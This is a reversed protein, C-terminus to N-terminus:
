GATLAYVPMPADFGKFQEPERAQAPFEPQDQLAEQTRRDCLVEGAEARQCLRAALNVATGVAVYELRGAGQIAGVTLHGTAIGIGLGLNGERQLLPQAECMLELALRM